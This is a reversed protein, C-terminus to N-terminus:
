LEEAKDDKAEAPGVIPVKLAVTPEEASQAILTTQRAETASSPGEGFEPVVALEIYWPPHALVKMKKGKPVGTTASATPTSAINKRKQGQGQLPYHYDPYIFGIVDFVRNLGKKERGEFAASL